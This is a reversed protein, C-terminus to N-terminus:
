EGRDFNGDARSEGGEKKARAEQMAIQHRIVAIKWSLQDLFALADQKRVTFTLLQDGLDLNIRILNKM